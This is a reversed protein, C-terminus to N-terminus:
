PIRGRQSNVNLIMNILHMYPHLKQHAQVQFSAYTPLFLTISLPLFDFFSYSFGRFRTQCKCMDYPMHYANGHRANTILLQAASRVDDSDNQSMTSETKLSMCIDTLENEKLQSDGSLM